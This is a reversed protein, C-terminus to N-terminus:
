YPSNRCNQSEPSVYSSTQRDPVSTSENEVRNLFEFLRPIAAAYGAVLGTALIMPLLIGKILLAALNEPKATPATKIWRQRLLGTVTGLLMGPFVGALAGVPIAVLLGLQGVVFVGHLTPGIGFHKACAVCAIIAVVFLKDLVGKIKVRFLTEVTGCGLVVLCCGFVVGAPPNVGLVIYLYVGCALWFMAGLAAGVGAGRVTHAWVPQFLVRIQFSSKVLSQSVPKWDSRKGEGTDDSAEIRRCQDEPTIQGAMMADVLCQDITFQRMTGDPLRIEWCTESSPVTAPSSFDYGCDCHLTGPPNILGCDPCEADETLGVPEVETQRVSSDEVQQANAEAAAEEARDISDGAVKGERQLLELASRADNAFETTRFREIVEAYLRGAEEYEGKIEAKCGRALTREAQTNVKTLRSM